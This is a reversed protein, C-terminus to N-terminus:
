LKKLKARAAQYVPCIKDLMQHQNNGPECLLCRPANRCSSAKHGIAGCRFCAGTRNVTSKCYKSVHGFELCRYCRLPQTYERLKCVVWGIKVKGAKLLTNAQSAPLVILASFTGSRRPRIKKVISPQLENLEPFQTNIACCIDEITITEDLDLCEITIQQSLVHVDALDKLAEVVGAKYGDAKPDQANKLVLMLEGKATRRIKNIEQGLEALNADAKMIKLM